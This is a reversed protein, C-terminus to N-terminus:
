AQGWEYSKLFHSMSHNIVFNTYEKEPIKEIFRM